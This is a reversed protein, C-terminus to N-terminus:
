LAAVGLIFCVATGTVAYGILAFFGAVQFWVWALVVASRDHSRTRRLLYILLGGAIGVASGVALTVGIPQTNPSSRPQRAVVRALSSMAWGLTQAVVLVRYIAACRHWGDTTVRM